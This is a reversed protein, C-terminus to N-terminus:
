IACVWTVSRNFNDGEGEGGGRPNVSCCLLTKRLGCLWFYYM